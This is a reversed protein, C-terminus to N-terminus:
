GIVPRRGNAALEGIHGNAELIEVLRVARNYGVRLERQLASISVNTQGQIFQLADDYLDDSASDLLDPQDDQALPKEEGEPQYDELSPLLIMVDQSTCDALEHAGGPLNGDADRTVVLKAEVPGKFTVQAVKALVFPRNDAAIHMVCTEVMAGVRKDISDIFDQQTERSMQHWMSPLGKCTEIVIGMLDTHMNRISTHLIEVDTDILDQHTDM